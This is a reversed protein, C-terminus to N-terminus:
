LNTEKIELTEVNYDKVAICSMLSPDFIVLNTGKKYVSSSFRIGSVNQTKQVYECIFQTPVYEIPSDFRRMPTSMDKSLAQILLKRKALTVVDENLLDEIENLDIDTLDEVYLPETGVVKFEGVSVVDHMNVRTEYFTTKTEESLYLYPIGEPNARGAPCDGKERAGMDKVGFIDNKNYHIRARYYSSSPSLMLRNELLSVWGAKKLKELDTTFRYRNKIDEKLEEWVAVCDIINSKYEVTTDASKIGSKGSNVFDGQLFEDIVSRCADASSFLGWDKQLVYCLPNGKESYEFLSVLSFLFEQLLSFDIDSSRETEELYARISKNLFDKAQFIM